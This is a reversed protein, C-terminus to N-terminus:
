KGNEMRSFVIYNYVFALVFALVTPGVWGGGLLMVLGASVASFGLLGQLTARNSDAALIRRIISRGVLPPLLLIAVFCVVGWLITWFRKALWPEDRKNVHVSQVSRGAAVDLIAGDFSLRGGNKRSSFHTIKGYLVYDCGLRKGSALAEDFSVVAGPQINLEKGLRILLSEDPQSFEDASRVAERVAETFYGTEDDGFRLVALSGRGPLLEV